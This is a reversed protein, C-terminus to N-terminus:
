KKMLKTIYVLIELLISDQMAYLISFYIAGGLFVSLIVLTWVNSIIYSLVILIVAVFISALIYQKYESSFIPFPIYKRGYIFQFALVSGEAIFTSFAAGDEKYLKFYFEFYCRRIHEM